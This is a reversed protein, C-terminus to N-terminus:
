LLSLDAHNREQEDHKVRNHQDITGRILQLRRNLKKIEMRLAKCEPCSPHLTPIPIQLM